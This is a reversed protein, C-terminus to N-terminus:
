SLNNDSICFAARIWRREMSVKRRRNEILKTYVSLESAHFGCEEFLQSLSDESFYFAYTGDSRVYFNESIMQNKDAFKGKSFDGICYDRFLVCGNPKLVTRINQLIIHMKKPSVASLM